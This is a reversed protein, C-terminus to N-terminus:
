EPAVGVLFVSIGATLRRYEVKVFGAQEVRKSLAEVPPFAQVSRQLYEYPGDVGSLLRGLGPLIKHFYLRYLKAFIAKRPMGFELIGLIGGPRMVRRMEQLGRDIDALNRLVFASVVIDFSSSAFPLALADASLLTIPEHPASGAIKHAGMRLMPQSFDCGFVPGLRSFLLSLDATGCGVDLIKPRPTFVRKRIEEFFVNRWRRDINASLFHNLFDYRNAIAGFMDRVKRAKDEAEENM